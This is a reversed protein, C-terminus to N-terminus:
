FTNQSLRPERTYLSSDAFSVSPNYTESYAESKGGVTTQAAQEYTHTLSILIHNKIKGCRSVTFINGLANGGCPAIFGNGNGVTAFAAAKGKFFRAFRHSDDTGGVSPAQGNDNPLKQLLKRQICLGVVKPKGRCIACRRPLGPFKGLM